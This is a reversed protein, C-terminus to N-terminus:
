APRRIPSGGSIPVNWRRFDVPRAHTGPPRSEGKRQGVLEALPGPQLRPGPVKSRHDEAPRRPSRSPRGERSDTPRPRPVTRGYVPITYNDVTMPPMTPRQQLQHTEQLQVSTSRQFQSYLRQHSTRRLVRRSTKTTGGIGLSQGPATANKLAAEAQAMGSQTLTIASTGQGTYIAGMNPNDFVSGSFNLGPTASVTISYLLGFQAPETITAVTGYSVLANILFPVSNGHPDGIEGLGIAAIRALKPPGSHLAAIYLM